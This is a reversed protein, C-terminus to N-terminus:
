MHDDMVCTGCACGILNAKGDEQAKIAMVVDQFQEITWLGSTWNKVAMSKIEDSKRSQEATMRGFRYQALIMAKAEAFAAKEVRKIRISAKERVEALHVAWRWATSLANVPRNEKLEDEWWMIYSSKAFLVTTLDKEFLVLERRFNGGPFVDTENDFPARKFDRKEQELEWAADDGRLAKAAEVAKKDEHADAHCTNYGRFSENRTRKSLVARLKQRAEMVEFAECDKRCFADGRLHNAYHEVLLEKIQATYAKVQAIEARERDGRFDYSQRKLVVERARNEAWVQSYEGSYTGKTLFHWSNELVKREKQLGALRQDEEPTEPGFALPILSAHIEELLELGRETMRKAERALTQDFELLIENDGSRKTFGMFYPELMTNLLHTGDVCARAKELHKETPAWGNVRLWILKDEESALHWRMHAVHRASDVARRRGEEMMLQLHETSYVEVVNDRIAIDLLESKRGTADYFRCNSNLYAVARLMLYESQNIYLEAEPSPPGLELEVAQLAKMYGNDWNVKAEAVTSDDAAYVEDTFPALGASFKKLFSRIFRSMFTADM